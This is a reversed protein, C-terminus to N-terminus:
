EFRDKEAKAVHLGVHAVPSVHELPLQIHPPFGEQEPVVSVQVLLIHVHPPFGAHEVPSVQVLEVQIHPNDGLQEPFLSVHTLLTHMHPVDESHETM